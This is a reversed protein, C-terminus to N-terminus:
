LRHIDDEMVMDCNCAFVSTANCCGITTHVGVCLVMLLSVMHVM